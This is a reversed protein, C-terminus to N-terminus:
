CGLNSLCIGMFVSSTVKTDEISCNLWQKFIIKCGIQKLTFVNLSHCLQAINKHRIQEHHVKSLAKWGKQPDCMKQLYMYTM